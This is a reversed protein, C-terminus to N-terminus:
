ESIQNMLELDVHQTLIQYKAQLWQLIHHGLVFVYVWM